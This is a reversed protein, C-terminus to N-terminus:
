DKPTASHLVYAIAEDLTMNRGETRAAEFTAEGLQERVYDISRKLEPEDNPQLFAGMLERAAESAGFLHAAQEPEGSSGIVGAWFALSEATQLRDNVELATQLGDWALSRAQEYDGKHQALYALNICIMQIRRTEGTERSLALSQEYALRAREDDGSLRFIEGMMNHAQALGPKYDLEQFLTLAKEVSGVARDLDGRKWYPFSLFTLAWAMDEKDDLQEAIRLAETYFQDSSEHDSQIWALLGASTLFRPHFAPSAEKLRPLAQEVWRRGEVHYGQAIWFLGLAGVLRVALEPENHNLTWALAVRLNEHEIDLRQFWHYQHSQRFEPAAREALHVFYEAHRKRVAQAEGSEQLRERAYEHITELLMFRLEGSVDEVQRIMSKEVLSALGDFVALPLGESCVAEVAELSRGGRFAAVRQLLIQEGENLLNYSWDIAARLTKQRDPADRSGGTFTSFRKDMREVIAQPTLLNSRAAALEIALPLGDLDTCIQVIDAANDDTLTFGPRVLRARQVFLSVAESTGLATSSSEHTRDPLQLPPVPYVQEGSVRLAQRSTTLITLAPAAALLEAVLSAADLLHEFNDLVLLIKREGLARKLTEVLPESANESVKLMDAIATAVLTRDRLPVLDVFHVGDTFEDILQRAVRLSLRTKGTGGPGTLTLLRTTSLLRLVEQIQQERGVFSTLQAPLNVRPQTNAAPTSVESGLLGLEQAKQSAEARGQVNLKTYIQKAYWRVTEVGIVLRDAIERNTLGDAMLCLINRERPKLSEVVPAESFDNM